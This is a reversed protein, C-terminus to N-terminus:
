FLTPWKEQGRFRLEAAPGFFCEALLLQLLSTESGFNSLLDTLFSTRLMDAAKRGRMFSLLLSATRPSWQLAIDNCGVSFCPPFGFNITLFVGLFLLLAM